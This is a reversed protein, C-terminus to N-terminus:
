DLRDNKRRFYSVTDNTSRIVRRFGRWVFAYFFWPAAVIMGFALMADASDASTGFGLAAGFPLFPLVILMLSWPHAHNLDNDIWRWLKGFNM